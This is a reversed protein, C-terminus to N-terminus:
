DIIFLDLPDEEPDKEYQSYIKDMADMWAFSSSDDYFVVVSWRFSPTNFSSHSKIKQTRPNFDVYVVSIM